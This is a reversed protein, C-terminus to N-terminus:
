QAALIAKIMNGISMYNAFFFTIVVDTPNTESSTGAVEYELYSDATLVCEGPLEFPGVVTNNEVNQNKLVSPSLELAPEQRFPDLVTFRFPVELQQSQEDKAVKVKMETLQIGGVAIKRCLLANSKGGLVEISYGAKGATEGNYIGTKVSDVGFNVLANPVNTESNTSFFRIKLAGPNSNKIRISMSDKTLELGKASYKNLTGIARGGYPVRQVIGDHVIETNKAPFM